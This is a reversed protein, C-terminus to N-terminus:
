KRKLSKSINESLMRDLVWALHQVTDNPSSFAKGAELMADKAFSFGDVNNTVIATWVSPTYPEFTRNESLFMEYQDFVQQGYLAVSTRVRELIEEDSEQTSM